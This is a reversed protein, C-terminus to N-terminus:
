LLSCPIMFANLQEFIKTGLIQVKFVLPAVIQSFEKPRFIIIAHKTTEKHAKAAWKRKRKKGKVRLSEYFRIM